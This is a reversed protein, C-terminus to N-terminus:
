FRASLYVQAGDYRYDISGMWDPTDATLEVDMLM